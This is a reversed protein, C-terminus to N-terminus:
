FAISLDKFSLRILVSCEFYELRLPRLCLASGIAVQTMYFENIEPVFYGLKM